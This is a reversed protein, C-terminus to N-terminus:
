KAQSPRAPTAAERLLSLAAEVLLEGAGPQLASNTVEYSGGVCAARTPIYITEVANSLEIVLTTGFPSGQKIALGLEVFVEGPLCVIAVESGVNLGIDKKLGVSFSPMEATVQYITNNLV